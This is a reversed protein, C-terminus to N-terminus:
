LRKKGAAKAKKWRAKAAAAMKARVEASMRRRKPKGSELEAKAAGTKAGKLKAWRARAAAAIRARAETSMRRKGKTGPAAALRGRSKPSVHAAPMGNSKLVDDIERLRSELTTKEQQLKARAGLYTKLIDTMELPYM